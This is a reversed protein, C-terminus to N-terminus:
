TKKHFHVYSSYCILRNIKDTKFIPVTEIKSDRGYLWVSYDLVKWKSQVDRGGTENSWAMVLLLLRVQLLKV